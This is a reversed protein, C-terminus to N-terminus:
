DGAEGHLGAVGEERVISLTANLIGGYARMTLPPVAGGAWATPVWHVVRGGVQQRKKVTDLPYTALKALTGAAAGAGATATPSADRGGALGVLAEYLAFTLGVAPVVSALAAPCGVFFHRVGGARWTAAALSTATHHARPVGQSAMSTRAWDLPYTAVTAVAAAVGGALLPSASGTAGDLLRRAASYAPFQLSMYGAWLFMAPANGRWLSRVGEEVLLQTLAGHLTRYFPASIPAGGAPPPLGGQLQLRIKLVDLPAVACRSLAGATAGALTENRPSPSPM